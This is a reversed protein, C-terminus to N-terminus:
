IEDQWNVSTEALIEAHGKETRWLKLIDDSGTFNVGLIIAGAEGGPIMQQENRDSLLFVAWKNSSSPTYAHRLIFEWSTTEGDLILSDYPFSIRDASSVSDDLRHWLSYRGSLPNEESIGWASDRSQKWNAPIGSEFDFYLQAQLLVPILLIILTLRKM